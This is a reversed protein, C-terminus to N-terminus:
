LNLKHVILLCRGYGRGTVAELIYSILLDIIEAVTGVGPEQGDVIMRPPLRPDDGDYYSAYRQLPSPNGHSRSAVVTIWM